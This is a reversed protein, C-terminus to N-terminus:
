DPIYDWIMIIVLIMAAAGLYAFFQTRAKNQWVYKSIMTLPICIIIILILIYVVISYLESPM